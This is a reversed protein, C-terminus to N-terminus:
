CRLPPGLPATSTAACVTAMVKFEEEDISGSNNADLDKVMEDVVEKSPPVATPCYAVIKTYLMLVGCYVELESLQGSKDIDMAEFTSHVMKQFRRGDSLLSFNMHCQPVCLADCLAVSM